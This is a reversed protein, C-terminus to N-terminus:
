WIDILRPSKGINDSAALEKGFGFGGDSSICYIWSLGDINLFDFTIIVQLLGEERLMAM